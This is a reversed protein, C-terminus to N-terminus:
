SGCCMELMVYMIIGLGVILGLSCKDEHAICWKKLRHKYIQTKM